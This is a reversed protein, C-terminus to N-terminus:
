SVEDESSVKAVSEFGAYSNEIDDEGDVSSRVIVKNSIFMKYIVDVSIKVDKIWEDFKIILVDPVVSKRLKNKIKNLTDAKSSFKFIQNM